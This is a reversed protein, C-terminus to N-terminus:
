FLEVKPRGNPKLPLPTSCVVEGRQKIRYYTTKYKNNYYPECISDRFEVTFPCPIKGSIIAREYRLFDERQGSIHGDKTIKLPM